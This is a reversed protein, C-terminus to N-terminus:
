NFAFVKFPKGLMENIPEKWGNYQRASLEPSHYRKLPTPIDGERYMQKHVIVYRVGTARLLQPAEDSSLDKVQQYLNWAEKHVRGAIQAHALRRCTRPLNLVAARAECVHGDAPAPRQRILLASREM